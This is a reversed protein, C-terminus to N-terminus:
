YSGCEARGCAFKPPIEGLQMVSILGVWGFPKLKSTSHEILSTGLINLSTLYHLHISQAASFSIIRERTKRGVQYIKLINYVVYMAVSVLQM